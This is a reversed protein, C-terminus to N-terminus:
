GVHIHVGTLKLATLVPKVQRKSLKISSAAKLVKHEDMYLQDIVATQGLGRLVRQIIESLMFTPSDVFYLRHRHQSFYVRGECLSCFIELENAPAAFSSSRNGARKLLDQRNSNIKVLGSM